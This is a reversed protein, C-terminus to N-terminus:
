ISASPVCTRCSAARWSIRPVASGCRAPIRCRCTPTSPAPRRSRPMSSAAASISARRRLRAFEEVSVSSFKFHLLVAHVPAFNRAIPLPRPDLLREGADGRGRLDGSVQHPPDPQRLAAHAAARARGAHVERPRDRLGRRRDPRSRWRIGTARPDYVAERLPRRSLPRADPRAGAEARASSTPSSTGFAGRRAAPFCSSSTPTSTSIGAGGATARSCRTAGCGAMPPPATPSTRRSSTSTPSAALLEATGDDSRDDVFVFRTVGLRRYHALFAPLYSASNRVTCVLALDGAALPREPKAPTLAIGDAPRARRRYRRERLALALRRLPSLRGMAAWDAPDRVPYRFSRAM